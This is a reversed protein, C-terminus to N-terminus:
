AGAQSGRRRLAGAAIGLRARLAQTVAWAWGATRSLRGDIRCARSRRERTVAVGAVAASPVRDPVGSQADGRFELLAGAPSPGALLRHCLLRGATNRYLCVSGRPIRALGSAPVLTLVDGDRIWPHMSRGRVQFRVSYGSRLLEEVLDLTPAIQLNSPVIACHLVNGGSM